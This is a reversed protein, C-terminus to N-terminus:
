HKFVEHFHKMTRNLSESLAMAKYYVAAYFEMDQACSYAMDALNSVVAGSVGNMEGREVKKTIIGLMEVCESIKKNLAKRDVSNLQKGLADNLQFVKTWDSNRDVVDGISRDTRTSGVRFCAGMAKNLSTRKKDMADVQRKFSVTSLKQDTNTVLASLYALFDALQKGADVAAFEAAPALAAIYHLYTAELGEPVYAGIARVSLYPHKNIEKIFDAQKSTLPIAPDTPAFRGVLAGFGEAIAPVTNKLLGNLDLSIGAELAVRDREIRLLTNSM